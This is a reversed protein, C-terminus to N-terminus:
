QRGLQDLLKRAEVTQSFNKDKELIRELETRAEDDRGAKALAVAMHYRIEASHPAKTVAEQLLVLGRQQQGNQLLLWGLTDVVEPRQPAIEYAHEAYAVGKESGEQQYLWAINNLATINEPQKGLILLYEEIAADQHGEQQLYTALSMRIANDEPHGQL